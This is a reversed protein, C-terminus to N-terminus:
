FGISKTKSDKMQSDNFLAKLMSFDPFVEEPKYLIEEKL